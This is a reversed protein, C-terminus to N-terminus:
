KCDLSFLRKQVGHRTHAGLPRVSQACRLWNRRWFCHASGPYTSRFAGVIGAAGVQAKAMAESAKWAAACPAASGAALGRAGM